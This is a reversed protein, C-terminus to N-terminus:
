WLGQPKRLLRPEYWLVVVVGRKELRTQLEELRCELKGIEVKEQSGDFQWNGTIETRMETGPTERATDKASM